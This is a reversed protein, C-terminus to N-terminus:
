TAAKRLYVGFVTITKSATGSTARKWWVTGAGNTDANQNSLKTWTNGGSDDDTVTPDATADRNTACLVLIDGAVVGSNIVLTFSTTTAGSTVTSTGVTIAM